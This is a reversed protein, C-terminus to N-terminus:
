QTQCASSQKPVQCEPILISSCLQIQHFGDVANRGKTNQQTIRSRGMHGLYQCWTVQRKLIRPHGYVYYCDEGAWQWPGAPPPPPPLTALQSGLLVWSLPVLVLERWTRTNLCLTHGEPSTHHCVSTIRAGQSISVPPTLNWALGPL